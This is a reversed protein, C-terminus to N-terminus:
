QIQIRVLTIRSSFDTRFLYSVAVGSTIDPFDEQHVGGITHGCAVLGIMETMNFGQRKFDAIHTDLDEQPEPVGLPGAETADVRGVRLPISMKSGGCSRVAVVAGLAILDSMSIGPIQSGEFFLQISNNFAAGKNEQRDTEFGISGDIGGTGAVVDATAMDHYATRLWEAATQTGPGRPFTGDCSQIPAIFASGVYLDEIPDIKPDPWTYAMSNALWLSSIIFANSITFM